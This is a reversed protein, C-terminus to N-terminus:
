KYKDDIRRLNNRDIQNGVGLLTTGVARTAGIVPRLIVTPAHKVVAAAANGPGRSDLLEGQVAILADKATLLDHELHRRASRLGQLLGLPQNAYASVARQEPEEDDSAVDHWGQEGFVRGGTSPRSSREALPSLLGEANSLVTQTGLAVKAGLRALESATTKGFQFAGKQISRVIRGDKQYERVPIAIVDRVGMGLNALSRLPALGALVGPLQNRTVDPTWLGNLQPHLEEFGNLGYLIAHKLRINAAELTIFNMFESTKGSRIGAYDVNKPKYDLCMDVTDVEVRQVFPREGEPGTTATCEDKFEFFRTIFDLADQDVHLRIPLVTVHLMFESASHSELTKVTDLQIHFMPKAMERARPDNTMHTLFKRWTSTPVKDFIEFDKLRLDVSSVIDGSGPPFILVDAAVGKLEFSIKHNKSRGLKLRRRQRQRAPGGFASYTTPRSMASVPISATESVDEDIGRNIQRRLDQADLNAPVGIYISNFLFDCIVSEDREQDHHSTRRRAKREEAKLEVQEVAEVIGDRTRQWDYGDYLHWIVHFDRLRLRFPIIMVQPRMQRGRNGVHPAKFRNQSGLAQQGCGLADYGLDEIEHLGAEVMNNSVPPKCQRGLDRLLAADGMRVDAENTMEFPDDELLSEATEPYDDGLTSERAASDDAGIIGSIPGYLSGTMVSQTLLDDPEDYLNSDSYTMDLGDEEAVEEEVDYLVELARTPEPQPLAEGSFSNILDEIPMPETLYKPVKNPPMPPVLAGLTAILTQTSDACTELLLLENKVDVEVCKSDSGTEGTATFSIEASMLSGVSVFGRRQLSINLRHSTNVYNTAMQDPGIPGLQEEVHRDTIFISAKRIDLKVGITEEPPVTTSIHTDSLVILAKSSLNRPTLGIASDHILLDINARKTVMKSVDSGSRRQLTAPVDAMALNATSQAVAAIMDEADTEEDIGILDLIAPVSYEVCLNLLKIKVTPEAEDGLMRAMIVPLNDASTQPVLSQLLPAGHLQDAKISGISFALLAPLGVHALHLDQLQLRLRGFRENVPLQAETDKVRLLTLLGPRDDEPLYKAVASLKALDDGLATLSQVSQWDEVKLKAEGVAFRLLSGKRRQRLLTDILIDDDTDYKDKSPTLLSLLRELDKDQPTLLYEIRLSHLDLALPANHADKKLSPGTIAIHELTAVAGHERYIAKLTSTRLEVSSSPARLLITAGGVRANLKLEANLTSPETDGAFRVGKQAKPTVPPNTGNESMFSNGLELVGGLGGLPGFTEDVKELDLTLHVRATQLSVDTVARKNVGIRNNPLTLSLVTADSAPSDSTLRDNNGHEFSLLETGGLEIALAGLRLSTDDASGVDVRHCHIDLVGPTVDLPNWMIGPTIAQRFSLSCRTLQLTFPLSTDETNGLNRSATPINTDSAAITSSAVYSLDHILRCTVIDVQVTVMGIAIDLSPRQEAPTIREPPTFLVSNVEGYVSGVGRRRSSSMNSYASFTGPMGQPADQDRPSSQTVPHQYREGVPHDHHGPIPVAVTLTDVRVLELVKEFASRQPPRSVGTHLVDPSVARPTVNGFPMREDRRTNEDLSPLDARSLKQDVDPSSSHQSQADPEWGGPMAMEPSGTMASMYMSQAEEHSYLRSELMEDAGPEQLESAFEVDGDTTEALELANRKNDTVGQDHVSATLVQDLLDCTSQLSQDLAPRSGPGQHLRHRRLSGELPPWSDPSHVSRDYPSVPRRQRGALPSNTRPSGVKPTNIRHGDVIFSNPLDDDSVMSKWLDEVVANSQSRRSGWSVNDDGARIDFESAIGQVEESLGASADTFKEADRTQQLSDHVPHRYEPSLSSPWVTPRFARDVSLASTSNQPGTAFATSTRRSAPMEIAHVSSATSSGERSTQVSGPKSAQSSLGSTESLVTKSPLLAVSIERLEISRRAYVAEEVDGKLSSMRDVKASDIAVRLTFPTALETATRVCTEVRVEVNRIDLKSRDVIGQLFNSLFGPVGVSMGMGATDGESSESIFSEEVNPSEAAVQAELQRREQMPEEMLFSKAVEQMTPVRVDEESDQLDGPGYPTTPSHLRRNMKRHQPTRTTAPSQSRRSRRPSAHAVDDEELRAVIEIGDVEVVISSQYFDAPIILRLSLVRAVELRLSPPLQALKTIRENNLGIDKLEIVNQKGITIDLKDLDIADDELLGTRQLVYRLGYRLLKKQWWSM